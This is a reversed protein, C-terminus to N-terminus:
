DNRQGCNGCFPKGPALPQGCNTCFRRGTREPGTESGGAATRQMRDPQENVIDAETPTGTGAPTFSQDRADTRSTDRDMRDADTQGTAMREDAHLPVAPLDATDMRDADTRGVVVADEADVTEAPRDSATAQAERSSRKADEIRSELDVIKELRATIEELEPRVDDPVAEGAQFRRHMSVGIRKHLGDIAERETRINGNLRNVEIMDSTYEHADQVMGEIKKGLKDFFAM